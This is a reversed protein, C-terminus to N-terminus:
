AVLDRLAAYRGDSDILTRVKQRHRRTIQRVNDARLGFQAAVTVAPSPDGLGKQVEYEWHVCQDRESGVRGIAERFLRLKPHRVRDADFGVVVGGGPGAVAAVTSGLVSELADAQRDTDLEVSPHGLDIAIAHRIARDAWTWPLAAGPRWGRARDFVVLAATQVLHEVEDADSLVDARNLDRLHRRVVTALAGGFEVSLACVAQGDGGAMAAMLEAVRDRHTTEM